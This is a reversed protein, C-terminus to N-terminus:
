AKGTTQARDNAEELRKRAEELVVRALRHINNTEDQVSKAIATARKVTECYGEMLRKTKLIRILGWLNFVILAFNLIILFTIM